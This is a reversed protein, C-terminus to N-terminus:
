LKERIPPDRVIHKGDADYYQPDCFDGTDCDQCIIEVVTAEPYDFSEQKVPKSKRCLPCRLTINM